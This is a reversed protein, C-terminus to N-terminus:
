LTRNSLFSLYFYERCKGSTYTEINELQGKIDSITVSFSNNNWKKFVGEFWDALRKPIDEIDLFKRHVHRKKANELFNLLDDEGSERFPHKGGSLIFFILMVAVFIDDVKRVKGKSGTNGILPPSVWFETGHITTCPDDPCVIRSIGFDAIKLKGHLSMLLNQPKLDRHVVDNKHLVELADLFEFVIRLKDQYSLTKEELYRKIDCDCLEMVLNIKENSEDEYCFVFYILNDYEYPFSNKKLIKMENVSNKDKKCRKVAVWGLKKQYGIYVKSNRGCIKFREERIFWLVNELCTIKKNDGKSLEKVFAAAMDWHHTYELERVAKISIHHSVGSGLLCLVMYGIFAIDCFSSSMDVYSVLYAFIALANM